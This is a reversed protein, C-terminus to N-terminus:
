KLTKYVNDRFPKNYHSTFSSSWDAAGTRLGAEEDM